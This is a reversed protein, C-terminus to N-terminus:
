ARKEEVIKRLFSDYLLSVLPILLFLVICWIPANGASQRVYGFNECNQSSILSVASPYEGDKSASEVFDEDFSLVVKQTEM